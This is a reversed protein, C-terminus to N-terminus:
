RGLNPDGGYQGSSQQEPNYGFGHAFGKMFTPGQNLKKLRSKLGVNKEKNLNPAADREIIAISNEDESMAMSQRNIFMDTFDKSIGSLSGVSRRSERM